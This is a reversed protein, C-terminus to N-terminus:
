PSPTSSCSCSSTPRRPTPSRAGPCTEVSRAATSWRSPTCTGSRRTSRGAPWRRTATPRGGPQVAGERVGEQTVAADITALASFAEEDVDLLVDVQASGEDVREGYGEPVVLAAQLTTIRVDRRMSGVDDYHRVTVGDLDELRDVLATSRPSGDLDQVGIDLSGPAASPSGSSRSSSWRCPWGSCWCRSRARADAAPRPSLDGVVARLMLPDGATAPAALARHRRGVAGWLLLVGIHPLVDVVTGDGASLEAFGRLAWGNPTLLTLRLLGPPLESLPVLSGGVIGLVFAVM